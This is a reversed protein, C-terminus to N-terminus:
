QENKNNIVEFHQQSMFSGFMCYFYNHCAAFLYLFAKKTDIISSVSNICMSAGICM